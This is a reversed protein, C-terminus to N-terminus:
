SSIVGFTKWTGPTGGTVCIWGAYGGASANINGVQDGLYHTGGNPVDSLEPNAGFNPNLGKRAASYTPVYGGVVIDTPFEGCEIVQPSCVYLGNGASISSPLRFGVVGSTTSARWVKFVRYWTNNAALQPVTAYATSQGLNDQAIIEFAGLGAVNDSAVWASFCYYYGDTTVVNDYLVRNGTPTNYGYVYGLGFPGGGISTSRDTKTVGDLSFCTQKTTEIQVNVLPRDSWASIRNTMHDNPGIHVKNDVGFDLVPNSFYMYAFPFWTKSGAPTWTVENNSSTSSLKIINKPYEPSVGDIYNSSGNIVICFEPFSFRTGDTYLTTSYFRNYNGLTIWTIGTALREFRCHYFANGGFSNTLDLGVLYDGYFTCQTFVNSDLHTDKIAVSGGVAGSTNGDAFYLDMFTNDSIGGQNSLGRASIDSSTYGRVGFNFERFVMTNYNVNYTDVGTICTDLYKFELNEFVGGLQLVTGIGYCSYTNDAGRIQMDRISFSQFNGVNRCYIAETAAPGVMLIISAKPGEGQFAVSKNYIEIGTTKYTGAPFFVTGGGSSLSAIANEIAQTSDASGTIDAGFDLVNVVDGQIM